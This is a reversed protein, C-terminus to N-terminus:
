FKLLTGIEVIVLIYKGYATEGPPLNYRFKRRTSEKVQLSGIMVGKLLRDGEDLVDDESLYIKVKSPGAEATGINQVFFSGVIKCKLGKKSERCVEMLTEWRIILEAGSKGILRLVLPGDPDNSSIVLDSTYTGAGIPSFSLSITCSKGQALVEGDRCTGGIRSFPAGPGRIGYLALDLVGQNGVTITQAGTEGPAVNGFDVEEPSAFIEPGLGTGMLQLTTNPFEPDNSPINLTAERVGTSTPAFSVIVSCHDLPVISRGSCTDGELIFDSAHSGSLALLGVDLNSYGENVVTFEQRNSKKEVFAAGFDYRDLDLHLVPAVLPSSQLIMGDEGVVMFTNGGFTVARPIVYTKLPRRV